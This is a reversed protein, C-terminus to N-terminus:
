WIEEQKHCSMYCCAILEVAEQAGQSCYYNNIM